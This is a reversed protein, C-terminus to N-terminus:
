LMERLLTFAANVSDVKNQTRNGRWLFREVRVDQVVQVGIYVLGVPKEPTGGGPGAIGTVSVGVEAGFLACVGRVMELATQESVAGYDLLTQTQVNVLQQKADNSYTVVGGLVYASSGPVDTVTSLLLGGTCSEAACFHYARAKLLEGISRVSNTNQQMM